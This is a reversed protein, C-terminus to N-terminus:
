NLFNITNNNVHLLQNKENQRLKKNMMLIIIEKMLIKKIQMIKKQERKRIIDILIVIKVTARRMFNTMDVNGLNKTEELSIIAIVVCEKPM